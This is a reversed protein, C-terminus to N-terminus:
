KKGLDAVNKYSGAANEELSVLKDAVVPPSTISGQMQLYLEFSDTM